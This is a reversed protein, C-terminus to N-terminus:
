KIITVKGNGLHYMMGVIKVKGAQILKKIILSKEPIAAIVNRLNNEAALNIFKENSCSKKGFTTTTKQIAPQIKNLLTTLNGLHVNECAGKIAGCNEHGMVVILKAHSIETAYELGGLVDHNLVNAAIRTVFINGVNQNFIIDPPVRSDICSLVMAIPHQTKETLRVNKLYNIKEGKNHFFRNNGQMLRNLADSPKMRKQLQKTILPAHFEAYSTVGICSLVLLFLIRKM